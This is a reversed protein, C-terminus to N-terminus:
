WTGLGVLRWLEKFWNQANEMYIHEGDDKKYFKHYIYQGVWYLPKWFIILFLFWFM